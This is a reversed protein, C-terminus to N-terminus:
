PSLQKAAWAKVRPNKSELAKALADEVKDPALKKLAKLAADKSTNGTANDQQVAGTTWVDDAVREILADIVERAKVGRKALAEAAAHRVGADEDKLQKVLAKVDAALAGEAAPKSKALEGLRG